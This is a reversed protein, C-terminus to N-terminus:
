TQRDFLPATGLEPLLKSLDTGKGRAHEIIAQRTQPTMTIIVEITVPDDSENDEDIDCEFRFTYIPATTWGYDMIVIFPLMEELCDQRKTFWFESAVATEVVCGSLRSLHEFVTSIGHPALGDPIVLGRLETDITSAELYLFPMELADAMQTLLTIPHMPTAPVSSM